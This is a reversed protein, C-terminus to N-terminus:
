SDRLAANRGGGPSRVRGRARGLDLGARTRNTVAFILSLIAVVSTVAAVVGLVLVWDIDGEMFM